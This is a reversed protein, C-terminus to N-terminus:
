LNVKITETSNGVNTKLKRGKTILNKIKMVLSLRQDNMQGDGNLKLLLYSKPQGILSSNFLYKQHKVKKPLKQIIHNAESHPSNQNSSHCEPQSSTTKM